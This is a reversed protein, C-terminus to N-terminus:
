PKKRPYVPITFKIVGDTRIVGNTRIFPNAILMENTVPITITENAPIDIPNGIGATSNEQQKNLRRLQIFYM